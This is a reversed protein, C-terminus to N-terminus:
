DRSRLARARAQVGIVGSVALLLAVGLVLLPVSSSRDQPAGGTPAYGLYQVAPQAPTTAVPAVTPPTTPAAPAVVPATVAPATPLAPLCEAFFDAVLKELAALVAPQELDSEAGGGLLEILGGALVQGGDAPDEALEGLTTDLGELVETLSAPLATLVAELDATIATACAQVDPLGGAPLGGNPVGGAPLGGLLQGLLGTLQAPDLPDAAADAATPAAGSVPAPASSSTPASSGGPLSGTLDGVAGGLGAVLGGVPDSPPSDAFATGPVVVLAAAVGCVLLARGRRPPTPSRRLSM